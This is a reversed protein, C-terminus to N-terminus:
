QGYGSAPANLAQGSQQWAEIGGRYWLVSSYGMNIARLAANYSMWCQTSQCYFVMPRARNGQTAQQLFQGFEQQTQDSFNGPASAPAAQIAGPIMPPSGLVHFLLTGNAQGQNQQLMAALEVTTILRGGPISTPTPGHMAGDHLQAQAPVGFDQLEAGAQPQGTGYSGPGHAPQGYGGTAPPNFAPQPPPPPQQAPPADYSSPPPATNYPQQNPNSAPPPQGFDQQAIGSLPALLSLSALTLRVIFPCPRLPTM